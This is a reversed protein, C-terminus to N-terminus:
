MSHAQFGKNVLPKPANKRKERTAYPYASKACKESKQYVNPLLRRMLIPSYYDDYMGTDKM